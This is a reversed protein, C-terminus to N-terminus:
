AAQGDAFMADIEDDAFGYEGLVDRTHEGLGPAGEVEGPATEQAPAQQAQPLFPVPQEQHERHQIQARLIVSHKFM